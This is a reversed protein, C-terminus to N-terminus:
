EIGYYLDAGPIVGGVSAPNVSYLKEYFATLTDRTDNGSYCVLACSDIVSKCLDPNPVIGADVIKQVVEDSATQVDTVSEQVLALLLDVDSLREEVFSKKAILIGMPLEQGTMDKWLTNLDLVTNVSSSTASLASVQPEPLLGIAGDTSAIKQAVDAHNDLWEIQVDSGITLGENKLLAELVYEPTGGRGSGIITHGKLDKLTKISSGNEVIYLVGNVVNTIVKINGNTKANLVAGMNSPLCAVDLDGSLLKQVADTPAQYMELNISKNDKLDILGMGTPGVLTGIRISDSLEKSGCSVVSLMMVVCLLLATFKKM